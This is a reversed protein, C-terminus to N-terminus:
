IGRSTAEGRARSSLLLEEVKEAHKDWSYWRKVFGRCSDEWNESAGEEAFWVLRDALAVPRPADALLREDFALLIEPIAGVPTGIVPTGCAMSEIISVGFGEYAVTPVVSADAARYWMPLNDDGSRGVFRVFRKLGISAAHRELADRERGEGVVILQVRDGVRDYVMRLADILIRVGTRPVLRRVTVFILADKDLGLRERVAQRPETSYFRKTDVGMPLRVIMAKRVAWGYLERLLRGSFDSFVGVARASRLVKREIRAIFHVFFLKLFWAAFRNLGPRSLGEYKMEATASAHFIYVFPLARIGFVRLAGYAVHPHHAIIADWRAGVLMQKVFRPTDLIDAISRGVTERRKVNGYRFITVDDRREETRLESLARPVGVAVTHGRRALARAEEWVVRGSGGPQDLSIEQALILIKMFGDNQLGSETPVISDLVKIISQISDSASRARELM